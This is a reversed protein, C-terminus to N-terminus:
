GADRGNIVQYNRIYSDVSERPILWKRGVKAAELRGERCWKMVTQVNLHMRDSAEMPTLMREDAGSRDVEEGIQKELWKEALPLLRGLIEALANAPATMEMPRQEEKSSSSGAEAERPRGTKAAEFDISKWEGTPVTDRALDGPRPVAYKRRDMEKPEKKEESRTPTGARPTPRSGISSTEGM